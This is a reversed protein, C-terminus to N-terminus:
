DPRGAQAFEAPLAQYHDMPPFTEFSHTAGTRAWPLATAVHTEPFPPDRPSARL